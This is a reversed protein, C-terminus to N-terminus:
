ETSVTISDGDGMNMCSAILDIAAQAIAECTADEDSLVIRNLEGGTGNFRIITKM